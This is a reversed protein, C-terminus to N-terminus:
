NELTYILILAISASVINDLGPEKLLSIQLMIPVLNVFAYLYLVKKAWPKKQYYKQYLIVHLYFIIIGAIIGLPIPWWVNWLFHLQVSGLVATIGLWAGLAVLLYKLNTNKNAM